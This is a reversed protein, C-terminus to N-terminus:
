DKTQNCGDSILRKMTQYQRWLDELVPHQDRLKQDEIIHRGLDRLVTVELWIDDGILISQVPDGSPRKTVTKGGDPSEYIWEPM